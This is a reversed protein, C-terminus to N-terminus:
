ELYQFGSVTDSLDCSNGTERSLILKKLTRLPGCADAGRRRAVRPPHHSFDQCGRQRQDGQQRQDVQAAGGQGPHAARIHDGGLEGPQGPLRWRGSGLHLRQKGLALEEGPCQDAQRGPIQGTRTVIGLVM